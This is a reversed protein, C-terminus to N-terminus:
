NPGEALRDGFYRDVSRSLTKAMTARWAPSVLQKEDEPNTLFGLEILVSPVDPAKLVVFGAFRHAPDLTRTKQSAYDVVTRAFRSSYNKTERQALDILIGTVEPSEGQLDLGAILDSQNEKRALAAAEKDSATESLTYISMGRVNPKQIADAHVSIFLDAKHRRAIAVRERLPIFIDSDRTLHVDYRGTSRLEEAFKKAFALVVDKEQVGSRGHTGPDVGGHGADIVVVRRRELREAPPSVPVAAIEAAPAAPRASEPLGSKANFSALDTPALDLVIRRGFGSQPDLVFDRSIEVPLEADLVVRYTDAEFRGYRYGSVFGKHKDAPEEVLRFPVGKVDIVVRFPDSLTFVRYDAPADGSIEMVFRTQSGHDGIRISTVAPGGQAPAASSPALPVAGGEDLAGTSLADNEQQIAADQQISAERLERELLEALDDARVPSSAFGALLCLVAVLGFGAMVGREIQRHFGM